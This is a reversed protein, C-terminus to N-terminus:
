FNGTYIRYVAFIFFGLTTQLQRKIYEQKNGLVTFIVLSMLDVYVGCYIMNKSSMNLISLIHKHVYNLSINRIVKM